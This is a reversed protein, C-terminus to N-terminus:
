KYKYAMNSRKYLTASSIPSIYVRKDTVIISKPELQKNSINEILGEEKSKNIFEKTNKSVNATNIDIIAIINNFPVVINEGVHLLM